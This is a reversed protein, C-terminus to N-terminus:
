NKEEQIQEFNGQTFKYLHIQDLHPFKKLQKWASSRSEKDLKEPSPWFGFYLEDADEKNLFQKAYELRKRIYAEAGKRTKHNLGNLYLKHSAKVHVLKAFDENFAQRDAGSESEM